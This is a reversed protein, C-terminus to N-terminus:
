THPHLGSQIPTCSTTLRSRPRQFSSSLNKFTTQPSISSTSSGRSLPTKATITTQISLLLLEATRTTNRPLGFDLFPLVLDFLVALLIDVIIHNHLLDVLAHDHLGPDHDTRQRHQLMYTTLFLLPQFQSSAITRFKLNPPDHKRHPHPCPQLHHQQKQCHHLRHLTRHLYM